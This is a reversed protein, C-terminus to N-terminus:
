RRNSPTSNGSRTPLRSPAPHAGARDALHVPQLRDDRGARHPLHVGRGQDDLTIKTGTLETTRFYLTQAGYNHVPFPTFWIAAGQYGTLIFTAERVFPIQVSMGVIGEMRASVYSIIPTYIFGYFVLVAM